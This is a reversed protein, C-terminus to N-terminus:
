DTFDYKDYYGKLMGCYNDKWPKNPGLYHLIVNNREVWETDIKHKHTRNYRNIQRDSLNYKRSDITGIRNGYLGFLVDEDYLTMVHKHADIFAFIDERRVAARMAAIQMLMVGTNPYVRKGGTRLRVGNLRTLLRGTNTSALLLHDGCDADYLEGLDGKVIIDVDLYLIKEVEPPLLEFALLRYYVEHPYRKVTPAERFLSEDVAIFDIRLASPAYSRIYAIDTDTLSSHLCFVRVSRHRNNDYLSRLMVCLFHRFKGNVCVLINM